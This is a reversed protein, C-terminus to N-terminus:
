RIRPVCISSPLIEALNEAKARFNIRRAAFDSLRLHGQVIRDWHEVIFGEDNKSVIALLIGRRKLILVTEMFGM